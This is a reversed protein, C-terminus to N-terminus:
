RPVEIYQVWLWLGIIAVGLTVLKAYSDSM